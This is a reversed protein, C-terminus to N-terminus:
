ASKAVRLAPRKQGPRPPSGSPAAGAALRPRATDPPPSGAAPTARLDATVGFRRFADIFHVPSYFRSLYLIAQGVQPMGPRGDSNLFRVRGTPFCYAKAAGLLHQFWMTDTQANVLVIAEDTYGAVIEVLLRIVFKEILGREYPPNLFVRGCWHHDPHLGNTETTYYSRAQIRAQAEAHTAPDCDIEAFVQRVAAIIEVPTGWENRRANSEIRAQKVKARWRRTMETPTLPKSGLPKRGM